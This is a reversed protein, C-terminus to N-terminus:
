AEPIDLEILTTATDPFVFFEINEQKLLEEMRDAVENSAYVKGDEKLTNIKKQAEVDLADLVEVKLVKVNQYETRDETLEWELHVNVRKGDKLDSKHKILAHLNEHLLLDNGEVKSHLDSIDMVTFGEFFKGERATWMESKNGIRNALFGKFTKTM